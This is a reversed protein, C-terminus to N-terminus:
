VFDGNDQEAYDPELNERICLRDTCQGLWYYNVIRRRNETRNTSEDCPARERSEEIEARFSTEDPVANLCPDRSIRIKRTLKL